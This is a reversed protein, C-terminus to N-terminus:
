GALRMNGPSQLVALPRRGGLRVGARLSCGLPWGAWRWVVSLLGRWRSLASASEVSPSEVSHRVAWRCSFELRCTELRLGARPSVESSQGHEIRSMAVHVLPLGALTQKSIYQM